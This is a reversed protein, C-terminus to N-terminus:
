SGSVVVGGAVASVTGCACCSIDGCSIDGEATSIERGSVVMVETVSLPVSFICFPAVDAEGVVSNLKSPESSKPM